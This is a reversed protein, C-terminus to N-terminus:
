RQDWSASGEAIQLLIHYLMTTMSEKAPYNPRAYLSSPSEKIKISETTKAAM